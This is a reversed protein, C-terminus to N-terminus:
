YFEILHVCTCYNCNFLMSCALPLLSSPPSKSVKADLEEYGYGGPYGGCSKLGADTYIGAKFGLENLYKTLWPLGHPFKESDWVMEGTPAREMTSWCDDLNIQNYGAALLGNDKMAHATEVFVSENLGCM